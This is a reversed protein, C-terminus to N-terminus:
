PRMWALVRVQRLAAEGSLREANNLAVCSPTTRNSHENTIIHVHDPLWVGSVAATFPVM